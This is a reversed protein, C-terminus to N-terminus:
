YGFCPQSVAKAPYRLRNRCANQLFGAGKPTPTTVEHLFLDFGCNKIYTHEDPLDHMISVLEVPPASTRIVFYPWAHDQSGIVFQRADFLDLAAKNGEDYYQYLSLLEIGMKLLLKSIDGNSKDHFPILYMGDGNPKLFAPVTDWDVNVRVVGPSMMPEAFWEAGYLRSRAPKGKKSIVGLACREIGLISKSLARSEFSSCTNNCENCVWGPALILLDNGLSEPVIHETSSFSDGAGCFICKMPPVVDIADAM